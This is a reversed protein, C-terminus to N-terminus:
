SMDPTALDSKELKSTHRKEAEYLRKSFETLEFEARPQGNSFFLESSLRYFCKIEFEFPELWEASQILAGISGSNVSRGSKQDFARHMALWSPADDNKSVDKHRLITRYAKAFPLTNAERMGRVLWWVLWLLLTLFLAAGLAKINRWLKQSSPPTSKWDAEMIPLMTEETLGVPALPAISFSWEPVDINRDQDTLLTLAPLSISRVDPPSNVIQYRITLEQRDPSLDVAQRTVWRGERQILPLERVTYTTNDDKNDDRLTISQELEDGITYGYARTPNTVSFATGQAASVSAILCLGILSFQQAFAM